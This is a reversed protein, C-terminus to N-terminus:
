LGNPQYLVVKSGEYDVEPNIEIRGRMAARLSMKKDHPCLFMLFGGSGAGLLKGGWAGAELGERYMRDIEPTSVDPALDKKLKWSESILEGLDHLSRSSLLIRCGEDVMGSLAALKGLNDDAAKRAEVSSAYRSFGTFYLVTSSALENRRAVPLVIPEM